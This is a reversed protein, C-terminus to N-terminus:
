QYLKINFPVKISVEINHGISDNEVNSSVYNTEKLQEDIERFSPAPMAEPCVIKGSSKVVPLKQM